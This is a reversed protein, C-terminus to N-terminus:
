VSRAPPEAKPDTTDDPPEAHEEHTAQARSSRRRPSRTSKRRPAAAAAVAEGDAETQERAEAHSQHEHRAEAVVDELEERLEAVRMRVRQSTVIWLKMSKKLVERVRSEAM